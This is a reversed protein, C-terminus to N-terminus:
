EGPRVDAVKTRPELQIGEVQGGGDLIAGDEADKAGVGACVAPDEPLCDSVGRRVVRAVSLGKTQGGM